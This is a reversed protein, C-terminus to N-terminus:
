GDKFTPAKETCSIRLNFSAFYIFTSSMRTVTSFIWKHKGATGLWNGFCPETRSKPLDLFPLLLRLKFLAGSSM